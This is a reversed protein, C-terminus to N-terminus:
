YAYALLQGGIHRQKAEHHSIIGQSTSLILIGIDRSPLYEKEWVELEEAKVHFRPRIAGCKNIRGLLQVIFKGFRGDDIFEFEGLYGNQQLVRLTHGILKSAPAIVCERNLRLENNMITSLANSLTDM